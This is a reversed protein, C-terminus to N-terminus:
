FISIGYIVQAPAFWFFLNSDYNKNVTLFGSYTKINGKGSLDKVLALERAKQLQGAELLPTLILPEGVEENTLNPHSASGPFMSLFPGKRTREIPHLITRNKAAALVSSLNNQDLIRKRTIFREFINWDM